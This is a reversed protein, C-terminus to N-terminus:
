EDINVIRYKIAIKIMTAMDSVDLKKMLNARHKEVTRESINLSYAIEKNTNGEAVRQLIQRERATLAEHPNIVEPSGVNEVISTLVADAITPSIYIERRAAINVATLLEETLSRKLL